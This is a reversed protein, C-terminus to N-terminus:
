DPKVWSSRGVAWVLVRELWVLKTMDGAESGVVFLELQEMAFPVLFSVATPRTFKKLSFRDVKLLIITRKRSNKSNGPGIVSFDIVDGFKELGSKDISVPSKLVNKVCIIM